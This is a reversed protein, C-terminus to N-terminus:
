AGTETSGVIDDAYLNIRDIIESTDKESLNQDKLVQFFLDVYNKFDTRSIGKDSHAHSLEMGTYQTESGLAASFFEYQMEKLKKIPTNKFFTSLDEHQMIRGYFDDVLSVIAERGGIRDFLSARESM